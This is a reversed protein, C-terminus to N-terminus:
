ITASELFLLKLEPCRPEPDDLFLDPLPLSKGTM